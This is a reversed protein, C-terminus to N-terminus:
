WKIIIDRENLVEPIVWSGSLPMKNISYENSGNSFANCQLVLYEKQALSAQTALLKQEEPDIETYYRALLVELATQLEVQSIVFNTDAPLCSHNMGSFTSYLHWGQIQISNLADFAADQEEELTLKLISDSNFTELNNPGQNLDVGEQSSNCSYAFAVIILLLNLTKMKKLKSEKM